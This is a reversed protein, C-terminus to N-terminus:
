SRRISPLTHDIRPKIPGFIRSPGVHDNRQNENVVGILCDKFLFQRCSPDAKLVSCFLPL